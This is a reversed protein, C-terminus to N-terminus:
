TSGAAGERRKHKSPLFVLARPPLPCYCAVCLWVEGEDGIEKFMGVERVYVEDWHAKTGLKSPALPPAEAESMAAMAAKLAESTSM